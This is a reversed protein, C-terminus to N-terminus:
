NQSILKTFKSFCPSKPDIIKSAFPLVVHLRIIKIEYGNLPNLHAREFKALEMSKKFYLNTLMKLRKDTEKNPVFSLYLTSPSQLSPVKLAM